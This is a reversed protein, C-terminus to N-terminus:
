KFRHGCLFKVSCELIQRESLKVMVESKLTERKLVLCAVCGLADVMAKSAPQM